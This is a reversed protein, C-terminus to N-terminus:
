RLAATLIMRPKNNGQPCAHDAALLTCTRTCSTTTCARGPVLPDACTACAHAAAAALLLEACHLSSHAIAAAQQLEHTVIVHAAEPRWGGARIMELTHAYKRGKADSTSCWVAALPHDLLGTMPGTNPCHVVVDADGTGGDASAVAAQDQHKSDPGAAVQGPLPTTQTTASAAVTSSSSSSFIIDALFRKYRRVLQGPVLPGYHFIVNSHAAGHAQQPVILARDAAATSRGVKKVARKAPAAATAAAVAASAAPALSAPSPLQDVELQKRKATASHTSSRKAPRSAEKTTPAGSLPGETQMTCKSRFSACLRTYRVSRYALFM